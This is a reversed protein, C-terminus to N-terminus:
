LLNMYSQMVLHLPVVHSVIPKYLSSKTRKTTLRVAPGARWGQSSMRVMGHQVKEQNEM